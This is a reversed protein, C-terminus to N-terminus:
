EVSIIRAVRSLPHGKAKLELTNFWGFPTRFVRFGNKVLGEQVLGLIKIAVSPESLEGFLHAFPHLVVTDVKLQGALRAIELVAGRSVDEPRLEDAKEVSALVMLSEGVEITRSGPDLDEVVSSRGKETTTSRLFDVHFMLVRM